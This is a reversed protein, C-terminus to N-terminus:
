RLGEQSWKGPGKGGGKGPGKGKFTGWGQWSSSSASSGSPGPPTPLYTGHAQWGRSRSQLRHVEAPNELAETSERCASSLYASWDDYNRRPEDLSKEKDKLMHALVRCAEMYGHPAEPPTRKALSKFANCSHFDCNLDGMILHAWGWFETHAKEHYGKLYM